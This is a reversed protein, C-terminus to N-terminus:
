NKKKLVENILDSRKEKSMNKWIKNPLPTKNLAFNKM